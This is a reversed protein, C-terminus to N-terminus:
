YNKKIIETGIYLTRDMYWYCIGNADKWCIHNDPSCNNDKIYERIEDADQQSLKINFSWNVKASRYTYFEVIPTIDFGFDITAM